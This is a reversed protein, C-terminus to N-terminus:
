RLMCQAAFLDVQSDALMAQVLQFEAIAQGFQQRQTAFLLTEHLIRQAQGICVASINLRNRDVAKMATKFGRGPTGGVIADAPVRVADFFVDHLLSGNQGMKHEKPGVTIGPTDHPVIFASVHANGPLREPHTAAMVTFVGAASANTVWRKAGTIVYHDGDQVARTALAASDSGSDPETLCFAAIVEGSAIRPLWERKQEPTGDIAISQMGAGINMSMISRFVAAAWTFEAMVQVEETLTLGLGGYEQPINLGFLGLERMQAVVEDPVQGTAEVERELAVLRERTFRHVADLIQTFTSHDM